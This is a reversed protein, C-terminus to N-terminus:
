HSRLLRRAPKRLERRSWRDRLYAKRPLTWVVDNSFLRFSLKRASFSTQKRSTRTNRALKAFRTGDVRAGHLHTAWRQM